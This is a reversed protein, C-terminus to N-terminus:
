PMMTDYMDQHLREGFRHVAANGALSTAPIITLLAVPTRPVPVIYTAYAAHVVNIHVTGYFPTTDIDELRIHHPLAFTFGQM